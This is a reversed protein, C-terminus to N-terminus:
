DAGTRKTQKKRVAHNFDVFADDIQSYNTRASIADNLGRDFKVLLGTVFM